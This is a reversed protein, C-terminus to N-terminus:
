FALVVLCSGIISTVFIDGSSTWSIFTLSCWAFAFFSLSALSLACAFFMVRLSMSQKFHLVPRHGSNSPKQEPMHPMGHEGPPYRHAPGPKKSKSQHVFRLMVM